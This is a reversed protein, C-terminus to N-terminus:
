LPKPIFIKLILNVEDIDGADLYEINLGEETVFANKWHYQREIGLITEGLYKFDKDM